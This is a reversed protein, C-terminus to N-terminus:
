AIGGDRRGWVGVQSWGETSAQEGEEHAFICMLKQATSEMFVRQVAKRLRLLRARLCRCVRLDVWGTGASRSSCSEFCSLSISSTSSSLDLELLETSSVVSPATGSSGFSLSLASFFCVWRTVMLM